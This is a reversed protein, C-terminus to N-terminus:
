SGFSKRAIRNWVQNMLDQGRVGWVLDYPSDEHLTLGQMYVRLLHHALSTDTTIRRYNLWTMTDLKIDEWDTRLEVKRGLRKADKATPAGYVQARERPHLTKAGQFAHEVSPVTVHGLLSDNFTLKAPAFNSFPGGWYLAKIGEVRYVQTVTNRPNM